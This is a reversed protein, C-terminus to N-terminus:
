PVLELPNRENKEWECEEEEIWAGGVSLCRLAVARGLGPALKSVGVEGPKESPRVGEREEDPGEEVEELDCLGEEGIRSEVRWWGGEKLPFPDDWDSKRLM